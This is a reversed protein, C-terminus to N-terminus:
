EFLKQAQRINRFMQLIGGLGDPLIEFNIVGQYAQQKLYELISQLQLTGTKRFPAHLDERGQIDSLHIVRVRSKFRQFLDQWNDGSLVAHPIDLCIGLTHDQLAMQFRNHFQVFDRGSCTQINELMLPLNLKRLSEFYQSESRDNEPSEPPHCVAYQFQLQDSISRVDKIFADIKHQHSLSSLDWGEIGANPLHLGLSLGQASRLTSSRSDLFKPTVEAHRVGALRVFRFLVSLPIGKYPDVTMGVRSV